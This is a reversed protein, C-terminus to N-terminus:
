NKPKPQFHLLSKIPNRFFLFNTKKNKIEKEKTTLNIKEKKCIYELNKQFRIFRQNNEASMAKRYAFHLIKSPLIGRENCDIV